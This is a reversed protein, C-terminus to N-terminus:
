EQSQVTFAVPTDSDTSNNEVTLKLDFMANATSATFDKALENELDECSITFGLLVILGCNFLHQKIKVM